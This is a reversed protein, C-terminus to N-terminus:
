CIVLDERKLIDMARSLELAKSIIYKNTEKGLNAASVLNYIETKVNILIYGIHITKEELKTDTKMIDYQYVDEQVIQKFCLWINFEM